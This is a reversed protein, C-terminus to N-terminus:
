GNPIAWGAPVMPRADNVPVNSFGAHDHQHSAHSDHTQLQHLAPLSLLHSPRPMDINFFAVAAIRTPGSTTRTSSTTSPPAAVTHSPRSNPSRIHHPTFCRHSSTVASVARREYYKYASRMKIRHSSLFQHTMYQLAMFLRARGM